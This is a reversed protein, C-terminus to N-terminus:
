KQKEYLEESSLELVDVPCKKWDHFMCVVLDSKSWDKHERFGSSSEEFEINLTEKSEYNVLIADPFGTPARFVLNFKKDKLKSRALFLGFMFIVYNEYFRKSLRESEDFREKDKRWVIDEFKKRMVM